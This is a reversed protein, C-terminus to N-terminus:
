YKARNNKQKKQIQKADARTQSQDRPEHKEKTRIWGHEPDASWLVNSNDRTHMSVRASTDGNHKQTEGKAEAATAALVTISSTLVNLFLLATVLKNAKM